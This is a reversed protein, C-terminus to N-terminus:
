KINYTNIQGFFITDNNFYVLVIKTGLFISAGNSWSLNHKAFITKKEKCIITHILLNM